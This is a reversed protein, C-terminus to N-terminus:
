CEWRGIKEQWTECSSDGSMYQWTDLWIDIGLKKLTGFGPFKLKYGPVQSTIFHVRTNTEFNEFALSLSLGLIPNHFHNDVM